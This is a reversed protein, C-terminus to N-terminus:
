EDYCGVEHMRDDAVQMYFTSVEAEVARNEDAQDFEAQLERCDTTGNIRAVVERSAGDPPDSTDNVEDGCGAMLGLLVVGVVASRKM